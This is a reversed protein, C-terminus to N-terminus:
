VGAYWRRYRVEVQGFGSDTSYSVPNGGVLLQWFTSRRSLFQLGDTRTGDAAIKTVSPVNPGTSVEIREDDGIFHNLSLRADDADGPTERRLSPNEAPGHFILQVPADVDGGNTLTTSNGPSLTTSSADSDFFFPNPALLPILSEQTMPSEGVGRFEPAGDPMAHIEYTTGDEMNLQLRGMGRTGNFARVLRRRRQWLDSISTGFVRVELMIDRPEALAEIMIAGHQHPARVTQVAMPPGEIGRIDQLIYGPLGFVVPDEGAVPIWRVTQM